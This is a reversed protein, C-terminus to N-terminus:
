ECKSPHVTTSTPHLMPTTVLTPKGQKGAAGTFTVAATAKGAGHLPVFLWVVPRGLDSDIHIDSAALKKGEITVSVNTAKAGVPGYIAVHTTFFDVQGAHPAVFIPLKAMDSKSITSQLGVAVTYKPVSRACVNTSLTASTSLYYDMKSSSTDRFYVGTVSTQSNSTPLVGQIKSGALEKQEEANAFWVMVRRESVGTGIAEVLKVPSVSSHTLQEFVSGTAMAFYAGTATETEGITPQAHELYVTNLLQQVFNQGTLVDGNPLRMPGTAGLVYGLTTPDVSLVGDIQGGFYKAWWGNIIQADSPFDPRALALNSRTYVLPQFIREVAPDPKVIPDGDQWEFDSSTAQRGMSLQGHDFTIQVMSASTGGLGTTEAENPFVLIYNRQGHAGLATMTLPLFKNLGDVTSKEKGLLTDLQKVADKVPSVVGWTSIDAVTGAAQDYSAAVGPMVQTLPTLQNLDVGGDPTRLTELNVNGLAGVLPNVVGRSLTQSAEVAQRVDRLNGGLVPLYEMVRWVPDHANAVAKDTDTTLREAALTLAATNFSTANSKFSALQSQADKMATVVNYARFGVWGVGVVLVALVVVVWPVVHPNLKRKRRDVRADASGRVPAGRKASATTRRGMKLREQERAHRRTGPGGYTLEPFDTPNSM